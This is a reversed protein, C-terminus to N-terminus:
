VPSLELCGKWGALCTNKWWTKPRFRSGGLHCLENSPSESGVFRTPPHFLGPSKLPILPPLTWLFIQPSSVWKRNTPDVLYWLTCCSQAPQGCASCWWFKHNGCIQPNTPRSNEALMLFGYNFLALDCSELNWFAKWHFGVEKQYGSHSWHCGIVEPLSISSHFVGNKM